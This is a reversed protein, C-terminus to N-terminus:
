NGMTCLLIPTISSNLATRRCCLLTSFGLALSDSLLEHLHSMDLAWVQIDGSSLTTFFAGFDASVIYLTHNFQQALETELSKWPVGELLLVALDLWLRHKSDDLVLRYPRGREDRELLHSMPPRGQGILGRKVGARKAKKSGEMWARIPQTIQYGGLSILELYNYENIQVGDHYLYISAGIEITQAIIYALLANHRALRDMTRAILVDFSRPQSKWLTILRQYAQIDEAADHIDIYNRSQGAVELVEVTAWGQKECWDQGAQRQSPLSEKDSTAQEPSSVACWIVARLGM